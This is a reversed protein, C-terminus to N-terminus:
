VELNKRSKKAFFHPKIEFVRFIRGFNPMPFSCFPEMAIAPGQVDCDRPYHLSYPIDSGPNNEAAHPQVSRRKRYIRDQEGSGPCLIRLIRSGMLFPHHRYAALKFFDENGSTEPTRVMRVDHIRQINYPAPNDLNSENTEPTQTQM